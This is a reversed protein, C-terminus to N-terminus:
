PLRASSDQDLFLMVNPHRRMATAPCATVDVVGTITRTVADAKRPGPVMCYLYHAAMLAPVTLTIAQRPVADLSNFCGDHVQQLRSKDDLQVTKVWQPEEADAVGPDNFAIHGNEGIGMCVIDIVSQHLLASYRDCDQRPDVAKPDIYHVKAFPVKAFLREALYRGFRQPAEPPLGLYEDMHFATVKSWNVNPQEILAALTEDQSPAAAFIMRINSKEAILERMKEAIYMAAAIGMQRRDQYVRVLMNDIQLKRVAVATSM